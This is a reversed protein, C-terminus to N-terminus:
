QPARRRGRYRAQTLDSMRGATGKGALKASGNCFSFTFNNGEKPVLVEETKIKRFYVESADNEQLEEVDAVLLEGKWGGEGCTSCWEWFPWPTREQRVSQNSDQRINRQWRIITSKQESPYLQVVSDLLLLMKISAAWWQEDLGSQLVNSPTGEKVRGLAREAVGNQRWIILYFSTLHHWPLDECAKGYDLINDTYIVKPIEEPDFFKRLSNRRCAARTVQTQKRIQCHPDKSFIHLCM